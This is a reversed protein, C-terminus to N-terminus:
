LEGVAAYMIYKSGGVSESSMEEEKARLEVSFFWLEVEGERHPIFIKGKHMAEDTASSCIKIEGQNSGCLSWDTM